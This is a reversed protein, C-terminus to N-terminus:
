GVIATDQGTFSVHQHKRIRLGEAFSRRCSTSFSGHRTGTQRRTKLDWEGNGLPPNAQLATTRRREEVLSAAAHRDASCRGTLNLLGNPRAGVDPRRSRELPACRLGIATTLRRSLHDTPALAELQM